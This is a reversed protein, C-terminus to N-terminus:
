PALPCLLGPLKPCTQSLHSLCAPQEPNAPTPSHAQPLIGMKRPRRWLRFIAAKHIVSMKFPLLCPVHPLRWARGWEWGSAERGLFSSTRHGPDTFGSLPGAMRRTQEPTQLSSNNGGLGQEQQMTGPLPNQTPSRCHKTRTSVPPRCAHGSGEPPEWASPHSPQPIVSNRSPRKWQHRRCSQPRLAWAIKGRSRQLARHWGLLDGEQTRAQGTQENGPHPRM